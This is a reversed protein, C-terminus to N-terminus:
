GGRPAVRAGDKLARPDLIIREGEALGELVVAQRAGVAGLRISRRRARGNEVVFVAEAGAARSVAALPVTAGRVEDGLITVDAEENIAFRPPRADFGVDVELERTVPDAELTVRVVHGAAEAGSRLHILAPQGIRVSGALTQDILTAVWLARTDVIQFVTIGPAVTSGAELARRTVVGAMPSTILTYSLVTEAVRQEQRTRALEARRADVTVRAGRGNAQATSAAARSVDVQAKSVYGGSVLRRDREYTVRALELESGTKEVNAEALAVDQEAAATARRASLARAQLETRDLVALLQGKAVEDGVDVLVRDLSGATRSGVSVPYRSQVTGPGRTEPRVSGLDVAGIVVRTPRTAAFIALAGVAAIALPVSLAVLPRRPITRPATNGTAERTAIPAKAVDTATM